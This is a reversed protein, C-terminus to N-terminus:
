LYSTLFIFYSVAIPLLANSLAVLGLQELTLESFILLLLLALSAILTAFRWGFILTIATMGLIHVTLHPLIGAKISWLGALVLSAALCSQQLQSNKLLSMMLTRDCAKILVAIFCLLSSVQLFSWSQM